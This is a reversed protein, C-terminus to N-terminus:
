DNSVGKNNAIFDNKFARYRRKDEVSGKKWRNLTQPTTNFYTAINRDTIKM